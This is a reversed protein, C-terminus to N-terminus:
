IHILCLSRVHHSPAAGLRPRPPQQEGFDNGRPGEPRRPTLQQHLVADQTRGAGIAKTAANADQIPLFQSFDFQLLGSDPAKRVLQNLSKLRGDLFIHAHKVGCCASERDGGVVYNWVKLGKIDRERGLDCRLVLCQGVRPLPARWTHEAAGATYVGDVLVHLNGAAPAALADLLVLSNDASLRGLFLQPTQLVVEELHLDMAVFGTLGISDGDGWNRLVCLDLVRGRVPVQSRASAATSPRLLSMSLSRAMERAYVRHSDKEEGEEKTQRVAAESSSGSRTSGQSGSRRSAGTLPRELNEPLDGVLPIRFQVSPRGSSAAPSGEPSDEEDHELVREVGEEDYECDFHGPEDDDDFVRGQRLQYQRQERALRKDAEVELQAMIYAQAVRDNSEIAALVAHNTTFLIVECCRDFELVNVLGTAKRIEGRFILADDLKVEVYRAGREAHIRSQNYNWIRLMSLSTERELEIFVLHPRGATFPCLWSHNDDCTHNVGDILNAVVRPDGNNEALVNIDAPDAAISAVRCLQGSSDFIEIGNLGLYHRDGWTSLINIGLHRGRPSEPISFPNNIDTARPPAKKGRPKDNPQEKQEKQEKKFDYEEEINLFQVNSSRPSLLGGSGSHQQLVRALSESLEKELMRERDKDAQQQVVPRRGAMHLPAHPRVVASPEEVAYNNMSRPPLKPPKTSVEADGTTNPRVKLRKIEAHLADEM